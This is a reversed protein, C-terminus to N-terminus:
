AGCPGAGSVVLKRAVFLRPRTGHEPDRRMWTLEDRAGVRADVARAEEAGGAHGTYALVSLLAGPGLLDVAADLAALTTERRTTCAHDGGPLYGLNFVVADACADAGMLARVEEAMKSHCQEIWHVRVETAATNEGREAPKEARERAAELAEAQVDFGLVTGGPAVLELLLSTDYGNGVTADIALAGPRLHARLLEHVEDTLRKM